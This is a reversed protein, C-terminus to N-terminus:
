TLGISALCARVSVEFDAVTGTNEILADPVIAHQEQESAHADGDHGPRTIRVLKGGLSHRIAFAENEFRVDAVLWLRVGKDDEVRGVMSKIWVLPDISRGVETGLLQLLQRPTKGWRADLVEKAFPDHVQRYTLGFITQAAEKLPAAFHTIRVGDDGAGRSLMRQATRAFLDKGVGKAGTIGIVFPNKPPMTMERM